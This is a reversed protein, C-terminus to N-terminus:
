KIRKTTRLKELFSWIHKCYGMYDDPNKFPRGIPPPPTKRKYKRWRGILGKEDYLQKEFMFRFDSCSCKLQVENIRRGPKKFYYTDKRFKAKDVGTGDADVFDVGFFKIMTQYIDLDGKVNAKYTVTKVGKAPTLAIRTVPYIKYKKFDRIEKLEKQVNELLVPM